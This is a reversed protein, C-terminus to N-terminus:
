LVENGDVVGNTALDLENMESVVNENESGVVM